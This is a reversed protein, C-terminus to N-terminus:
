ECCRRISRSCHPVVCRSLLLTCRLCHRVTRAQCVGGGSGSSVHCSGEMWCPPSALGRWTEDAPVPEPRVSQAFNSLCYMHAHRMCRPCACPWTLLAFQVCRLPPLRARASLQLSYSPASRLSPSRHALDNTRIAAPRQRECRARLMERWLLTETSTGRCVSSLHLGRTNGHHAPGPPCEISALGLRCAQGWFPRTPRPFSAMRVSSAVRMIQPRKTRALSTRILSIRRSSRRPRAVRPCADGLPAPSAALPLKTDLRPARSMQQFSSKCKSLARVALSRRRNDRFLSRDTTRIGSPERRIRQLLVPQGSIGQQIRAMHHESAACKPHPYPDAKAVGSVLERPPLLFPSVISIDMWEYRFLWRLPVGVASEGRIVGVGM